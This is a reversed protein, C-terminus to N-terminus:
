DKRELDSFEYKGGRNSM